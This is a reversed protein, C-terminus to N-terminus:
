LLARGSGRSPGWFAKPFAERMSHRVWAKTQEITWPERDFAVFTEHLAEHIIQWSDVLTNDWDFLVARPATLATM